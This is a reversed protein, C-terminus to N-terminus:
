PRGGEFYTKPAEELRGGFKIAPGASIAPKGSSKQGGDGGLFSPWKAEPAETVVGPKYSAKIPMESAAPAKGGGSFISTVVAVGFLIHVPNLAM